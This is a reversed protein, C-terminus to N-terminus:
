KQWAASQNGGEWKRGFKAEVRKTESKIYSTFDTVTDFKPRWGISKSRDAVGRANAGHLQMGGYYKEIEEPTFSSAQADESFKYTAMATGVTQAAAHLTYEGSIGLYYGATGHGIDGKQARSYVLGYLNGLDGINVHAWINAGKM